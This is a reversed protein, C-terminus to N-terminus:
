SLSSFLSPAPALSAVRMIEAPFPDVLWSNGHTWIGLTQTRAVRQQYIPIRKVPDSTTLPLRPGLLSEM